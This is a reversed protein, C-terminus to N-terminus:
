KAAERLQEMLESAVQEREEPTLNLHLDTALSTKLKTEIEARYREDQKVLEAMKQMDVKTALERGGVTVITNGWHDQHYTISRM